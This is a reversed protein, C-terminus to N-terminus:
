FIFIYLTCIHNYIYIYIYTHTSGYWTTNLIRDTLSRNHKKMAGVESTKSMSLLWNKADKINDFLKSMNFDSMQEKDGGLVAKFKESTTDYTLCIYEPKEVGPTARLAVQMIAAEVEPCLRDILRRVLLAQQCKLSKSGTYAGSGFKEEVWAKRDDPKRKLCEFRVIMSRGLSAFKKAAEVCPVQGGYEAFEFKRKTGEVSTVCHKAYEQVDAVAHVCAPKTATSSHISIKMCTSHIIWTHMRISFHMRHMCAGVFLFCGGVTQAKSHEWRNSYQIYGDPWLSMHTDDKSQDLRSIFMLSITWTAYICAFGVSLINGFMCLWSLVINWNDYM